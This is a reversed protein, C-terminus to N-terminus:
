RQCLGAQESTDWENSQEEAKLETQRTIKKKGMGGDYREFNVVEYFTALTSPVSFLKLHL